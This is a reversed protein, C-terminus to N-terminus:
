AHGHGNARVIPLEPGEEDHSEDLRGRLLRRRAPSVSHYLVARVLDYRFGFSSGAIRLIRRECLLELHEILEGVELELMAALPEPEFPQRLLSAASLVRYLGPGEARLQGLLTDTLSSSLELRRGNALADAIFRPNGGTSEHLRPIGLPELDEPALPSLVLETSPRLRRVAHDPPAYVSRVTVVVAGPVDVCRHQLYDLAAITAGDAAHVDDLLLVLPAQESFLRALAELAEVETHEQEPGALALEPLIRALAPLREGDPELGASRLAAALPVYPLHQELLSCQARGVRADPFFRSIEDLMRTKGLGADAEIRVLAFSGDLASRAARELVELEQRRGLLDVSRQTVGGDGRTLPRPLLSDVADQRLIATEVARTEPTPELGLEESLLSRLSRYRALAEHQRGLAYLALMATRHAREAFRDLKVAAEGHELADELDREALAAEAAELHAGLVRGQYSGRLEHAWVAYPEDELVDGRVLALAHEISRRAQRTPERAARELLEDFRDLDLEVLETDFRYAEPETAVLRRAADRDPVLHRRLVSVFTQISAAVDGPRRDGWLLEAIRDTPVRHGRAALLIELVQKPRSGGLDGPGLRREGHVFELPGFLRVVPCRGDDAEPDRRSRGTGPASLGPRAHM